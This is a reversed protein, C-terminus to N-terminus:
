CIIVIQSIGSSIYALFCNLVGRMLWLFWYYHSNKFYTIKSREHDRGNAITVMKEYYSSGQDLNLLISFEMNESIERGFSTEKRGPPALVLYLELKWFYKVLIVWSPCISTNSHMKPSESINVLYNYPYGLGLHLTRPPVPGQLPVGQNPGPVPVGSGRLPVGSIPGRLPVGQDPGQTPVPVEQRAQIRESRRM